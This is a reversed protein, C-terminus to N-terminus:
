DDGLVKAAAQECYREWVPVEKDAAPAWHPIPASTPTGFEVFVDLRGQLREHEAGVEGKVRTKTATVNYTFSRGLHPLHSHGAVRRRADLQMQRCAKGTVKKIEDTIEKQARDLDAALLKLEHTDVRM